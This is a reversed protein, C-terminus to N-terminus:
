LYVGDDEQQSKLLSDVEIFRMRVFISSGWVDVVHGHGYGNRVLAELKCGPCFHLLRGLVRFKLSTKSTQFQFVHFKLCIYKSNEGAMHNVELWPLVLRHIVRSRLPALEEPTLLVM